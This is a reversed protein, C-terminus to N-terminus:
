KGKKVYDGECVYVKWVIGFVLSYIVKEEVRVIGRLVFKEKILMRIVKM